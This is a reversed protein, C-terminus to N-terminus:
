AKTALKALQAKTAPKAPKGNSVKDMAALADVIQDRPVHAMIVGFRKDRLAYFIDQDAPSLEKFFTVFADRNAKAADSKTKQEARAEAKVLSLRKDSIAKSLKAAEVADSPLVIAALDAITQAADVAEPKARQAAKAEAAKTAAKPKELEYEAALVSVVNRSWAVDLANATKKDTAELGRQDMYAARWEVRIADWSELTPATGLKSAIFEVAALVAGDALASVQACASVSVLEIGFVKSM